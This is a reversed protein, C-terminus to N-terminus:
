RHQKGSMAHIFSLLKTVVYCDHNVSSHDAVARWAHQLLRISLTVSKSDSLGLRLVLLMVHKTQERVRFKDLLTLRLFVNIVELIHELNHDVVM